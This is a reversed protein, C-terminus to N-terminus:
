LYREKLVNLHHLMHGIIIFGIGEVYVEKGNAIGSANLQEKNFSQFLQQSSKQVVKYEEVLDEKSRRGADAHHAFLNEDFGPLETADRRSFRLARYQFIREADILHQLLDKISWKGEAYKFDWKEKPIEQLFKLAEPLHVAFARQLEDVTVRNVYSHYYEPIRTFDPKPM